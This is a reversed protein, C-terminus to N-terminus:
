KESEYQKIKNNLETIYLTLEEIKEMQITLIEGVDIGSSKIEVASPVKPLRKYRIVYDHLKELSMLEYKPEFVYDCWPGSAEVQVKQSRISGCVTLAFSPDSISSTGIGVKGNNDIYLGVNDDTIDTGALDSTSSTHFSIGGIDDFGIRRGFGEAIRVDNQTVSNYYTNVGFYQVGGDHFAFADSVQFVEKPDNTGIGVRGQDYYLNAGVGVESWQSSVIEIGQVHVPGTCNISGVVELSFAPDPSTTGIGVNGNGDITMRDIPGGTQFRLEETGSPM